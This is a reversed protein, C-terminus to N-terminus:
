CDMPVIHYVARKGGRDAQEVQAAFWDVMDKIEKLNAKTLSRGAITYSQGSAVSNLAAKWVVLAAQAEEKTYASM